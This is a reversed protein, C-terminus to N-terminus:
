SVQTIDTWRFSQAWGFAVFSPCLLMMKKDKLIKACALAASRFSVDDVQATSVKPLPPLFFVAIGLGIAICGIFAGILVYLSTRDELLRKSSGSRSTYPCFDVACILEGGNSDNHSRPQSENLHLTSNIALTTDNKTEVNNLYNDNSLNMNLLVSSMINGIVASAVFITSFMSFYKGLVHDPDKARRRANLYACTTIYTGQAAWFLGSISGLIVSAPLITWYTPYYNSAAYLIHICCSLIIVGKASLTRIAVPAFIASVIITGYVCMLSLVGLGEEQNVSSQLNQISNYSTFVAVFVISIVVVSRTEKGILEDM